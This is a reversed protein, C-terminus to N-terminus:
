PSAPSHSLGLEGISESRVVRADRVDLAPQSAQRNLLEHLERLREPDRGVLDEELGFRGLFFRLRPVSSQKTAELTDFLERSGILPENELDEVFEDLLMAPM